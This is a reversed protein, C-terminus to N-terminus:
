ILRVDLTSCTVWRSPLRVPEAPPGREAEGPGAADELPRDAPPLPDHITDARRLKRSKKVSSMPM